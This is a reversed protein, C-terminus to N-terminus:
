EIFRKAELVHPFAFFATHFAPHEPFDASVHRALLGVGEVVDLVRFGTRGDGVGEVFRVGVVGVVWFGGRGNCVGFGGKGQGVEGVGRPGVGLWSPGHIM